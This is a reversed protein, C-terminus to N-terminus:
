GPSSVRLLPLETNPPGPTARGFRAPSPLLEENDAGAREVITGGGVNGEAVEQAGNQGGIQIKMGLIVVVHAIREHLCKPQAPDDRILRNRIRLVRQKPWFDPAPGQLAVPQDEAIGASDGGRFFM